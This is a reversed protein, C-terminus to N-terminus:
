FCGPIPNNTGSCRTMCSRILYGWDDPGYDLIVAWSATGADQRIGVKDGYYLTRIPDRPGSTTSYNGYMTASQCTVIAHDTYVMETVTGGREDPGDEVAPTDPGTRADGCGSMVALLGSVGMLVASRRFNM